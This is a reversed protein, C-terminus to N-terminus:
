ARAQYVAPTATKFGSGLFQAMSKAASIAMRLLGPSNASSWPAPQQSAMVSAVISGGLYDEASGGPGTASAAPLTGGTNNTRYNELHHAYWDAQPKGLSRLLDVAEQAQALALDRRGLEANQIGAYWLLNAQHQRDGLERALALAQEFYPLARAPDSGIV